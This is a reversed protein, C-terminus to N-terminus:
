RHESWWIALRSGFAPVQARRRLDPRRHFDGLPYLNYILRRDEEIVAMLHFFSTALRSRSISTMFLDGYACRGVM